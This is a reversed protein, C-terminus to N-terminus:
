RADLRQIQRVATLVAKAEEVTLDNVQLLIREKRLDSVSAFVGTAMCYKGSFTANYESNPISHGLSKLLADKQNWAAEAEERIRIEEAVEEDHITQLEAVKRKLDGISFTGDKKVMVRRYVNKFDPYGGLLQIQIGELPGRYLYSPTRSAHELTVDGVERSLLPNPRQGEDVEGFATQHLLLFAQSPTIYKSPEENNRGFYTQKNEPVVVSEESDIPLTSVSVVAQVQTMDKEKFGTLKVRAKSRPRPNVPATAGTRVTLIQSQM